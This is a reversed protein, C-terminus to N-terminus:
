EARSCEVVSEVRCEGRGVSSHTNGNQIILYNAISPPIRIVRRTTELADWMIYDNILQDSTITKVQSTKDQLRTAQTIAM